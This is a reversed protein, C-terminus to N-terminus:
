EDSGVLLDVLKDIEIVTPVSPDNSNLTISEFKLNEAADRAQLIKGGLSDLAENRLEDRLAEAKAIALKGDALLTEYLADATPRVQNDYINASAMISAVEIENTSFADQLQKDWEARSEKELAETEKEIKGTAKMADEVLRKSKALETLQQTLQKDQLKQEYTDLFRVARILISEPEVHYTSLSERLIPLVSAALELRIDTNVFDEPILRSLEERLVGKVKSAVRERYDTKLGEAVILHAQGEIIRYAVSVDVSVPNNDRTRIELPREEQSNLHHRSYGSQSKPESFTLFHTRRDLRHWRHIGTVGWHFGLLYDESVVGGSGWMKQKVGIEGPEIRELLSSALFLAFCGFLILGVVLKLIRMDTAEKKRKSPVVNRFQVAM